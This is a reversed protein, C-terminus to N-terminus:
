GPPVIKGLNFHIERDLEFHHGSNSFGTFKSSLLRIIQESWKPATEVQFLAADPLDDEVGVPEEGNTVRSLHDARLNSKGPRICVTFDFEM